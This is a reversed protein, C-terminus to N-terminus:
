RFKPQGCATAPIRHKRAQRNVAARYARASQKGGKGTRPHMPSLKDARGQPHARRGNQGISLAGLQRSIYQRPSLRGQDNRVIRALSQGIRRRQPKARLGRGHDRHGPGIAFCGHGGKGALNPGSQAMRRDVNAGRADFASPLGRRAMGGRVRDRQVRHQGLGRRRPHGMRRHLGRGMPQILAPHVTHTQARRPEGVQRLIMQIIVVRHRGIGLGLRPQEAAQQGLIPRRDDIQVARAPRRHGIQAGRAADPRQGDAMLGPGIQPDPALAITRRPLIQTKVPLALGILHMQVKDAPKLRFVHQHRRTEDNARPRRGAIHEARQGTQCAHPAPHLQRGLALVPRRDINVIGM